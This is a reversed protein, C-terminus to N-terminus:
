ILIPFDDTIQFNRNDSIPETGIADFFQLEVISLKKTAKLGDNYNKM